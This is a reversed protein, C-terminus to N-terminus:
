ALAGKAKFDAFDNFHNNRPKWSCHYSGLISVYNSPSTPPELSYRVGEKDRYESPLPSEAFM